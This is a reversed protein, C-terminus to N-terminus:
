SPLRGDSRAIHSAAEPQARWSRLAGLKGALCSEEGFCLASLYQQKWGRGSRLLGLGRPLLTSLTLVYGIALGKQVEEGRGWMRRASELSGDLGHNVAVRWHGRGSVARYSEREIETQHHDSEAQKQEGEVEKSARKALDINVANQTEASGKQADVHEVPQQPHQASRFRGARAPGTQAQDAEIARADVALLASKAEYGCAQTEQGRTQAHEPRQGILFAEGPVVM